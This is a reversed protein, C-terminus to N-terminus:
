GHQGAWGSSGWGGVVAGGAWRLWQNTVVHQQVKGEHKLLKVTVEGWGVALEFLFQVLHEGHDNVGFLQTERQSLHMSTQQNHQDTTHM